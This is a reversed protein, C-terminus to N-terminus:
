QDDSLEKAARLHWWALVGSLFVSSAVLLLLWTAQATSLPDTTIPMLTVLSLNSWGSWNSVLCIVAMTWCQQILSGWGSLQYKVLFIREWYDPFVLPLQRNLWQIQAM